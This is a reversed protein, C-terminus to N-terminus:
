TTFDPSGHPAVAERYREKLEPWPIEGVWVAETFHWLLYPHAGLRYLQAYDRDVFARREEDTLTGADPLPVRSRAARTEWAAVFAAPDALYRALNADSSEVTRILKDVM